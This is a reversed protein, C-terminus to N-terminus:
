VIFQSLHLRDKLRSREALCHTRPVREERPYATLVGGGPWRQLLENAKNFLLGQTKWIEKKESDKTKVKYCHMYVPNYKKNNCSLSNHACADYVVCTSHLFFSSFLRPGWSYGHSSPAATLSGISRVLCWDPWMLMATCSYTDYRLIPLMLVPVDVVGKCTSPSLHRVDLRFLWCYVRLNLTREPKGCYCNHYTLNNM